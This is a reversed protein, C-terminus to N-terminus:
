RTQLTAPNYLSLVHMQDPLLRFREPNGPTSDSPNFSSRMLGRRAHNRSRLLFHGLEHAVARGLLQAVLREEVAVVGKGIGAGRIMSAATEYSVYMVNGPADGTFTLSALGRDGRRAVGDIRNAPENRFVLTIWEGERSEPIATSLVPSVVVNYAAWIAAASDIMTNLLERPTSAAAVVQLVIHIPQAGPEATAHSDRCNTCDRSSLGSIAAALMIAVVM